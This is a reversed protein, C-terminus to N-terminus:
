AKQNVRKYLHKPAGQPMYGAKNIDGSIPVRERVGREVTKGTDLSRARLWEKNARALIGTM